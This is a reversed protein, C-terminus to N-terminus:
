LSLSLALGWGSPLRAPAWGLRRGESLPLAYGVISGLSAGAIVDALYHHDGAIRAASVVPVLLYLPVGARWGYRRTLIGAMACANAAHGSPFSLRNGHDPRERRVGRKVPGVLLQTFGLARLVDASADRLETRGTASAVAWLGLGAPLNVLSAGYLDGFDLLTGAGDYGGLRRQVAHDWRHAIGAAGLGAAAYGLNAWTAVAVADRRAQPKTYLGAAPGCLELLLGVVALWAVRSGVRARSPTRGGLSFGAGCVPCARGHM